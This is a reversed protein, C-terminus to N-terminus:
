VSETGAICAERGFQDFARIAVRNYFQNGNNGNKSKSKSFAHRALIIGSARTWPGLHNRICSDLDPHMLGRSGIIVYSLHLRMFSVETKRSKLSIDDRVAHQPYLTRTPSLSKVRFCSQQWQFCSSFGFREHLAPSFPSM